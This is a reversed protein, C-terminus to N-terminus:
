KDVCFCDQGTWFFQSTARLIYTHRGLELFEVSVKIIESTGDKTFLEFDFM